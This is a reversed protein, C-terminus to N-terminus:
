LCSGAGPAVATQVVEAVARKKIQQSMVAVREFTFGRKDKSIMLRALRRAANAFRLSVRREYAQIRSQLQRLMFNRKDRQRNSLEGDFAKALISHIPSTSACDVSSPSRDRFVERGSLKSVGAITQGIRILGSALSEFSNHRVASCRV